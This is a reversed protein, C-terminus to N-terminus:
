HDPPSEGLDTKNQPTTLYVGCHHTICLDTLCQCRTHSGETVSEDFSRRKGVTIKGALTVNNGAVAVLRCGSSDRRVSTPQAEKRHNKFSYVSYRARQGFLFVTPKTRRAPSNPTLCPFSSRLLITLRILQKRTYSFSKGRACFCALHFCRARTNSQDPSKPFVPM